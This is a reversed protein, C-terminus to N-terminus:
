IVATQGPLLNGLMLTIAEEENKKEKKAFVAANGGAIADDYKEKAEELEKVQAEVTKDGIRVVLRSVVVHPEIPFEFTCEIPKESGSNVYTFETDLM